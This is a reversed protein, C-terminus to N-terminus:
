AEISGEPLTVTSLGYLMVYMKITVIWQRNQDIFYYFLIEGVDDLGVVYDCTAGDRAICVTPMMKIRLRDMLFKAREANLRTFRAELHRPALLAM